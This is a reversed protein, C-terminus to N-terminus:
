PSQAVEAARATRKVREKPPKIEACPLDDVVRYLVDFDVIVTKGAKRFLGAYKPDAAREYLYSRSLGSEEVAHRIRGSRRRRGPEPGRDEIENEM